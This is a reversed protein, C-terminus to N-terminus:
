STLEYVSCGSLSCPHFRWHWQFIVWGAPVLWKSCQPAFCCVSVCWCVCLAFPVFQLYTFLFFHLTFISPPLESTSSTCWSKLHAQIGAHTFTRTQVERCTNLGRPQPCCPLVTVIWVSLSLSVLVSLSESPLSYCPWTHRVCLCVHLVCVHVCVAMEYTRSCWTASVWTVSLVVQSIGCLWIYDMQKSVWLMTYFSLVWPYKFPAHTHTHWLSLPLPLCCSHTNWSCLLEIKLHLSPNSLQYKKANM